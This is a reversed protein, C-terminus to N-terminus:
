LAAPYSDAVELPAKHFVFSQRKKKPKSKWENKSRWSGNQISPTPGHLVPPGAPPSATGTGPCSTVGKGWGCPGSGSNTARSQDSRCTGQQSPWLMTWYQPPHPRPSVLHRTAGDAARYWGSSLEYSRLHLPCGVNEQQRTRQLSLHRHYTVSCRKKRQMQRTVVRKAQWLLTTSVCRNGM